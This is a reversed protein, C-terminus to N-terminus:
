SLEDKDSGNEDSFIDDDQALSLPSAEGRELQRLYARRKREPL